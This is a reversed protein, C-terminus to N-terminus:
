IKIRNYVKSLFKNQHLNKVTTMKIIIFERLHSAIVKRYSIRFKSSCLAPMVWSWWIALHHHKKTWFILTITKKRVQHTYFLLVRLQYQIKKMATLTRVLMQLFRKIVLDRTNSSTQNNNFNIRNNIFIAKRKLHPIQKINQLWM